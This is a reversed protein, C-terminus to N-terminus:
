FGRGGGGHSSGSSSSHVSSGGGSSGGSSSSEVIRTRSTHSNYFLDVRKEIKTKGESIYQAANTALRIKKYSSVIIIFTVLTIITTGIVIPLYPVKKIRVYEGSNNIEYNSNSDPIGEEYYSTLKSIIRRCAAAYNGSKMSSEASDLLGDIREDDYMLIADGATSIYYERNEMDILFLVGDDKFDNYDYFDDAYVNVTTKNQGNYYDKPNEDITVIALDFSSAKIYESVAGYLEKEEKDTLLDAFDYIKESADVKPTSLINEMNEDTVVVDSPVGLDSKTRPTQKTSAKVNTISLISITVLFLIFIKRRM